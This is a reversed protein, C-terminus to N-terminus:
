PPKAVLINVTMLLSIGGPGGLMGLTNSTSLCFPTVTAAQPWVTLCIMVLSTARSAFFPNHTWGCRDRRPLPSSQSSTELLLARYTDIQEQLKGELVKGTLFRHYWHQLM